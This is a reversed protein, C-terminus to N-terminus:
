DELALPMSANVADLWRYVAPLNEDPAFAIRTGDCSDVGHAHWRLMARMSNVRGVHVWVGRRKAEVIVPLAEGRARWPEAGGIFLVDFAGWDLRSPDVGDQAVLAARYGLRRLTPLYPASREWTAAADGVVDPAVAFLCTGAWPGLRRLWRLWRGPDFADGRRCCGNDAAWPLRDLPVVNGIAPQLMVGLDPRPCQWM